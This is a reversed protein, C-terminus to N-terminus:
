KVQSEEILLVKLNDMELLGGDIDKSPWYKYCKVKNKEELNCFMM